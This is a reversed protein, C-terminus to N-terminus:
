EKKESSGKKIAPDRNIMIRIEKGKTGQTPQIIMKEDAKDLVVEIADQYIKQLVLQPRKRYEPLIKSLYDANAKATEVVTTKYARAEFIKEKAAGAMISWLQEERTDDTVKGTIIAMLEEIQGANLGTAENLTNERYGNAEAITKQSAQSAKVSNWFATDVQRPWTIDTLQVSEATIGSGILDLKKQVLKAVHLPIRDQSLIAEDITYHVMAAVVADETIDKLLSEISEAIVQSSLEGPKIDRVYVNKFFREPDSIRYTLQWKSHVINYDSGTLSITEKDPEEGRTICYGEFIPDLTEPVREFGTHWFADIPLNVKKKVPIKIMQEVPYPFVWHLGPGLVRKEGVGKIAGWRLVIAEEDPGVQKFGSVAFFVLLILMLVKLIAFSVRLAESLSQNATEFDSAKVETPEANESIHIHDHETM